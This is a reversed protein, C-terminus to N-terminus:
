EAGVETLLQNIAKFRAQSQQQAKSTASLLSTAEPKPNAGHKLLLEVMEPRGTQVALVLPPQGMIGQNPYAGEALLLEVIELNGRNIAKALATEGDEGSINVDAGREVLLKVLKLSNNDAAIPLAYGTVYDGADPAAGDTLLREATAWDDNKVAEVLQANLPLADSQQTVTTLLVGQSVNLHGVQHTMSLDAAIPTVLPRFTTSTSNLQCGSLSAAILTMVYSAQCLNRRGM